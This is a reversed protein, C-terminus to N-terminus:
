QYMTGDIIGDLPYSRIDTGPFLRLEKLGM